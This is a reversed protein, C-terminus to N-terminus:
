CGNASHVSTAANFSKRPRPSKSLPASFMPSTFAVEFCCHLVTPSMRPDVIEARVHKRAFPSAEHEIIRVVTMRLLKAMEGAHPTLIKPGKSLRLVSPEDAFGTIAAADLVVPVKTENLVKSALSRANSADMM